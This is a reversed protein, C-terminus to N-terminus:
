AAAAQTAAERRITAEAVYAYAVRAEVHPEGTEPHQGTETAPQYGAPSCLQHGDVYVRGDQITVADPHLRLRLITEGRAGAFIDWGDVRVLHGIEHGDITLSNPILVPTPEHDALETIVVVHPAPYDRPDSM